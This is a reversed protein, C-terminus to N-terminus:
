PSSNLRTTKWHRRLRFSDVVVSRACHQSNWLQAFLLIRLRSEHCDDGYASSMRLENVYISRLDRRTQLLIGGTPAHSIIRADIRGWTSPPCPTFAFM